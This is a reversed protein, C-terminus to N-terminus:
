NPADECIGYKSSEEACTVKLFEVKHETRILSDRRANM